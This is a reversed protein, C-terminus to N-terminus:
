AMLHPWEHWECGSHPARTIKFTKFPQALQHVTLDRAAASAEQVTGPSYPVEFLSLKKTSNIAPADPGHNQSM